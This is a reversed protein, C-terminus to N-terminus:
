LIGQKDMLEALSKIANEHRSLTENVGDLLHKTAKEYKVNQAAIEKLSQEYLRELENLRAYCDTDTMGGSIQWQTKTMGGFNTIRLPECEWSKTIGEKIQCVTVSVYQEKGLLENVKVKGNKITKKIEGIFENNFVAIYAGQEPLLFSVEYTDKIDQFIPTRDILIGKGTSLLEYRL